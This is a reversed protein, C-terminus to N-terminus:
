PGVRPPTYDVEPRLAKTYPGNWDRNFIKDLVQTFKMDEVILGVDRSNYFYGRQWNSGGVWSTQGDVTMFKAHTVRAYPIFGGSFPPITSIKIDINPLVQLSKLHDIAPKQTNWDAVIINVKVGRVSAERLATDIEPWYKGDRTIPNYTLLQIQIEESASNIQHLLHKLSWLDENPALDKPGWVPFFSLSQETAGPMQFPLKYEKQPVAQLASDASQVACLRWDLEFLDLFPQAATENKFRVGIEHIHKLARWDFNQSGVFVEQGDVIFFKSHQVGDGGRVTAFDMIRVEINRRIHLRNLSDPYVSYFKKEALFRVQVGRSAAEIIAALVPELAEGPENSVYFQEFDLSQRAGQIMEMWVTQTDRIEPNDMRTEVPISEVIEFDPYPQQSFSYLAFLSLFCSLTITKVLGKKMIPEM